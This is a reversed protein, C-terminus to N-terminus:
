QHELRQGRRSALLREIRELGLELGQREGRCALEPQRGFPHGAELLAVGRMALHERHGPHSCTGVRRLDQLFAIQQQRDVADRQVSEAFHFFRRLGRPDLERDQAIAALLDDLHRRRRQTALVDIAHQEPRARHQM